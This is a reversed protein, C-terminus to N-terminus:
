LAKPRRLVLIALLAVVYFALFIIFAWYYTNMMDYMYGAMLPGASAGVSHFFMAVGFITGYSALGFHTSTLMAMTPLWSGVGLGM